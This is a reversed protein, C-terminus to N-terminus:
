WGKISSWGSAAYWGTTKFDSNESTWSKQPVYASLGYSGAMPENHYTGSYESMYNTATTLYLPACKDYATKWTTYDSNNGTLYSVLNCLDMYRQARYKDYCFMKTRDIATISELQPGYKDLVTKTASALKELESSKVLMISVGSTWNSNATEQTPQYKNAYYTYYAKTIANEELTDKFMAPVVDTYYAGPGPIETASSIFYDACSRMDYLVEASAMFCADFLIFNFHPASQQMAEVLPQINLYSTVKDGVYQGIWRSTIRASTKIVWGEGHSWLVLGYSNAPYQSFVTSFVSKIVDTSTSVQASYTKVVTKTIKGSVREIKILEPQSYNYADVYVLLNCLNTDLGSNTMGNIMEDIDADAFNSLTNHAMMYVLVTRKKQTTTDNDGSSSCASLVLVSTLLLTYLRIIYQYWRRDNHKSRGNM